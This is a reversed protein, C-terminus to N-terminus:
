LRGAITPSTGPTGSSKAGRSFDYIYSTSVFGSIETQGLFDLTKQPISAQMVTQTSTGELDAVRKELTKIKDMMQDMSMMSPQNTDDARVVAGATLLAALCLGARRVKNSQTTM